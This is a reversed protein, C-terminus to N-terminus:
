VEFSVDGVNGAGTSHFYLSDFAKFKLGTTPILVVQDGATASQNLRFIVDKTPQATGIQPSGSMSCELKGVAASHISVLINKLTGATQIQVATTATGGPLDAVYNRM